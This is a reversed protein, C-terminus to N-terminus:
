ERSIYVRLEIKLWEEFKQNIIQEYMDTTLEAPFFEEVLLLDYTEHSSQFPGLVEGEVANFVIEAIEPKLDRRYRKGDYGCQLRLRLETNYLHAAEYFSIEAEEIRYFLEQSLTAYPVTIRYLLIQEFDLQYEAFIREVESAFLDEALKRALLQHRIGLEWDSLTTLQEALWALIDSPNKLHKEYLVRDIEARIEDATVELGREHAVRAVIKQCYIKKCVEKLQLKQGLFDVIESPELSTSSLDVM